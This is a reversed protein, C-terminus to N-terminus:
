FKKGHLQPRELNRLIKEEMLTEIDHGRWACFDLVRIIVDACEEGELELDGERTAELIESVEEHMLAVKEAPMSPNTLTRPPAYRPESPDEPVPIRERDYFGKDRAWQHISQALQNLGSVESM